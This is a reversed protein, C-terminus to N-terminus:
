CSETVQINVTTSDDSPAVVVSTPGDRWAVRNSTDVSFGRATTPVPFRNVAVAAQDGSATLADTLARDLVAVSDRLRPGRGTYWRWAGAVLTGQALVILLVTLGLLWRSRLSV